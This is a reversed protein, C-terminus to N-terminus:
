SKKIHAEILSLGLSIVKACYDHMDIAATLYVKDIFLTKLYVTNVLSDKVSIKSEASAVRNFYSKFGFKMTKKSSLLNTYLNQQSICVDCLSKLEKLFSTLENITMYDVNDHSKFNNVDLCLVLKCDNYALNFEPETGLGQVPLYAILAVDSPLRQGYVFTQIRESNSEFGKLVGAKFTDTLPKVALDSQVQVNGTFNSTAILHRVLYIDHNVQKSLATFVEVMSKNLVNINKTFDVSDAIKLGNIIKQDTFKQESLSDDAKVLTLAKELSTISSKLTDFSHARRELYDHIVDASSALLEVVGGFAYVVGKYMTSFLKPGYHVGIATLAKLSRTLKNGTESNQQEWNQEAYDELNISLNRISELAPEEPESSEDPSNENGRTDTDERSAEEDKSDQADKQNKLNDYLVEYEGTQAAQVELDHLKEIELQEELALFLPKSM